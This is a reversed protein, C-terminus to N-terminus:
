VARREGIPSCVQVKLTGAGTSIVDIYRDKVPDVYWYEDDGAAIHWGTTTTTTTTSTAGFTVYAPTTIAELRIWCKGKPADAGLAGVWDYAAAAASTATQLTQHTGTKKPPMAIYRLKEALGM